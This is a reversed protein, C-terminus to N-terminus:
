NKFTTNCYPHALQGNDAAGSGGDQKRQIHDFTLSNIHMYGKCIACKVANGLAEKIFIASKAERTFESGGSDEIEAPQKVYSYDGSGLTKLIDARTSKKDLLDVIYQYFESVHPYGAAASRWKRIIQETVYSNDILFQEFDGRVRTFKELRKPSVSLESVFLTVAYFSAPKYRGDLSYFYVAPHLGLSGPHLSNIRQAITRSKKLFKVTEDGNPDDIIATEEKIHNAIIIFELILALTQQSYLKGGVPLDLTKIPSRLPPTFLMSNIEKSIAEVEDQNTSTFNSWYKHGTGSRSIARSAIGQPKKRSRLLRLETKNIPAANQNIKFFSEEAKHADGNVWQLQVGQSALAKAGQIIEPLVKSPDSLALKYDQYNGIRKRVAIRTKDAIQLQEEPVIGDFFRKSIPGDGYDDNVWAALASLRHSGDIVFTYSNTPNRWLIIAPILDGKIFSEVLSIIKEVTWENTERQFDPKKIASLFFSEDELDRIDITAKSTGQTSVEPNSIEFDERPIIADLIVRM